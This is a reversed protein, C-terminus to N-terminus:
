QLKDSALVRWVLVLDCRACVFGSKSKVVVVIAGEDSPFVRCLEGRFM